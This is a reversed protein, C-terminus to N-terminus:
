TGAPGVFSIPLGLASQGLSMVLEDTKWAMVNGGVMDRFIRELPRNRVYAHAGCVRMAGQSIEESMRRLHYVTRVLQRVFLQATPFPEDLRRILDYLVIRGTELWHEMNGIGYQAWAQEARFGPTPGLPSAPGALYGHRQAVYEVTFDFAAQALGLWIALIGLAGRTRNQSEATTQSAQMDRVAQVADALIAEGRKVADGDESSVDGSPPLGMTVAIDLDLSKARQGLRDLNFKEPKLYALEILRYGCAASKEMAAILSDETAGDTWVFSHIGLRAM